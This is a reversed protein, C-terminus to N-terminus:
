LLNEDNYQPYSYAPGWMGNLLQLVNKGGNYEFNIRVYSEPKTKKMFDNYYESCEITLKIALKDIINSIEQLNRIALYVDHYKLLFVPFVFNDYM